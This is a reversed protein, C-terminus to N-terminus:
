DAKSLSLSFDADRIGQMAGWSSLSIEFRSCPKIDLVALGLFFCSLLLTWIEGLTSSVSRSAHVPFRM